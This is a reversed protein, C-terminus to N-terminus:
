LQKKLQDIEAVRVRVWNRIGILPNKPPSNLEKEIDKIRQEIEEIEKNAKVSAAWEDSNVGNKDWGRAANILPNSRNQREVELEKQLKQFTEIRVYKRKGANKKQHYAARCSDSCFVKQRRGETQEINKQCTLCEKM